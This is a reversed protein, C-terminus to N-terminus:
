FAGALSLGASGLVATPALVAFASGDASRFTPLFSARRAGGRYHLLQPM